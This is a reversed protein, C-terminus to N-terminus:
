ATSNKKGTKSELWTTINLMVINLEKVILLGVFPITFGWRM